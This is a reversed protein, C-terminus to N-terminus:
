FTNPLNSFLDLFTLAEAQALEAQLPTVTDPQNSTTTARADFGTRRCTTYFFLPIISAAGEVFLKNLLLDAGIPECETIGSIIGGSRWRVSVGPDAGRSKGLFCAIKRLLVCEQYPKLLRRLLPDRTRTAAPAGTRPPGNYWLM